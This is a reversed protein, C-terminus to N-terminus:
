VGDGEATYYEWTYDIAEYATRYYLITWYFGNNGLSEQYMLWGLWFYCMPVFAAIVHMKEEKTVPHGFYADLIVDFLNSDLDRGMLIRLLDAGPDDLAGYEWDIVDFFTGDTLINDYKWDHHCIVEKWGENRYCSRLIEAKMRLEGFTESLDGKRASALKMLRDGEAISDYKMSDTDILDTSDHLRRMMKACRCVLEQDTWWAKSLDILNDRYRGIKCGSEDIYLCSTDLGLRVALNQAIVERKKSTLEWSSEGPYRFIYKRGAVVFTLLINTMGKDLIEVDHVDEPSCKLIECIRATMKSSVDNIFLTEVGQLESVSDFEYLFDTPYRRVYWDLDEIHRMALEEWFMMDVRFLDLDDNVFRVFRSSFREDLFAHGYFCEGPGRSTYSGIIRGSQNTRICTEHVCDKKYVTAHFANYEYKSFPNGVFYNDSSCIYTRRLRDKVADLTVINGKEIAPTNSLRVGYKRELFLFLEQRYGLVVTIDSIGAEQLQRIQREILTEGNVVYLGKPLSYLAKASKAAGGAALIIANDVRCTELERMAADTVRGGAIMGKAELESILVETERKGTFVEYPIKRIISEAIDASPEQGAMAKIIEFEKYTLM